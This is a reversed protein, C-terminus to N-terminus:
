NVIGSFIGSPGCEKFSVTWSSSEPRTVLLLMLKTTFHNVESMRGLSSFIQCPDDYPFDSAFHVKSAARCYSVLDTAIYSILLGAVDHQRTASTLSYEVKRNLM